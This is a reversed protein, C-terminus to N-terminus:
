KCHYLTAIHTVEENFATVDSDTYKKVTDGSENVLDVSFIPDCLAGGYRTYYVTDNNYLAEEIYLTCVANPCPVELNKFWQQNQVGTKKVEEKKCSLFGVVIFSVLFIRKM